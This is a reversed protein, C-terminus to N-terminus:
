GGAIIIFACVMAVLLGYSLAVFAAVALIGLVLGGLPTLHMPARHQGPKM